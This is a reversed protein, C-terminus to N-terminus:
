RVCVKMKMPMWSGFVEIEYLTNPKLGEVTYTIPNPILIKIFTQFRLVEKEVEGM